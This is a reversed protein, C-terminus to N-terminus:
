LSFPQILETERVRDSVTPRFPLVCVKFFAICLGRVHVHEFTTSPRALVSKLLRARKWGPWSAESSILAVYSLVYQSPYTAEGFYGTMM